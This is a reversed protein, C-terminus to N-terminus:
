AAVGDDYQDIAQNMQDSLTSGVSAAVADPDSAQTHVNVDNRQNITTSRGGVNTNSIASSTQNIMPNSDAAQMQQAGQQVAAATEKPVSPTGPQQDGKQEDDGFGLKAKIKGAGDMVTQVAGSVFDVVRGIIKLLGEWASGVSDAAATMGDAVTQIVAGAQPFMTKIQDFMYSVNQGLNAFAVSPGDTLLDILFKCITNIYDVFLSAGNAIDDFTIGSKDSLWQFADVVGQAMAKVNPFREGIFDVLEGAGQALNKFAQRPGVTFVDTWFAAFLKIYEWLGKVIQAVDKVAEGVWPWKKTLEGIVSNQGDLFALADDIVLAFIAGLAAVVAAIAIYPALLAYTAAVARVLAPLYFVTIMAAVAGFFGVVFPKNDRIWMGFRQMADLAWTFAPLVATAITRRIDDWVQNTMFQQTRFQRATEVQAATVVGLTKNRAIIDDLGQKGKMMLQVTDPGLGFQEGFQTARIQSMGKLREAIQGLAKEPDRFRKALGELEGGLAGADKGNALLANQLANLTSVNVKTKAALDGLQNTLEASETTMSKLASYAVLGALATAANKIMSVFSDGLKSAAADTDQLSRALDDSRQESDNIGRDLKKADSEFLFFFTEFVSSM